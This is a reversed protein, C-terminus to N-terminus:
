AEQGTWGISVVASLPVLRQGSTPAHGTAVCVVDGEGVFEVYGEMPGVTTYLTIKGRGTGRDHPRDALDRLTEYIFDDM